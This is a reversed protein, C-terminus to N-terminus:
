SVGPCTTWRPSVTSNAAVFPSWNPCTVASTGTGRIFAAIEAAELYFIDDAAGLSGFEALRRGIELFVTRVRGYVRTREFRLNERDRIRGRALGLVIGFIRRRLPSGALAAALKGEATDRLENRQAPRPPHAALHGVARYLPMPDDKLTKSELKLEDLCRDGFRDTYDDCHRRFEPSRAIEAAIDDANGNCLAHVLADAPRALDAMAAMRRVPELSVIASEGAVLDNHIGDAAAGLWKGTLQRLAGHFIMCYLDNVLPTDWAPIVRSQLHEYYDILANTSMSSLEVPALLEDLTAHFRRVDSRHTLMRISLSVAVRVVSLGAGIKAVFGGRPPKPTAEEPLGETVGMMQEMFKRNYRFGPTLMLLRYWNLLNYYVRGRILGIMQEYARQNDRIVSESIGLVRGMHRYAEQYAERAVSFTLPTTVGGYSEM